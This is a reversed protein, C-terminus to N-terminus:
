LRRHSSCLHGGDVPYSKEEFQKESYDAAATHAKVDSPLQLTEWSDESNQRSQDHMGQLGTPEDLVCTRPNHEGGRRGNASARGRSFTCLGSPGRALRDTPSDGSALPSTAAQPAVTRYKPIYQLNLM